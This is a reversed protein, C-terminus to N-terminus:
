KTIKNVQKALRSKYRSVTQKHLTKKKSATDLASYAKVLLKKAQSPKNDAVAKLVAKKATRFNEKNISNVKKRRASVRIAKKASSTNAM